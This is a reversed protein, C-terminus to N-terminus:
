QFNVLDKLLSQVLYDVINKVSVMGVPFNEEDVIPIHRYGGHSMMSLAFAITTTMQATQPNKTMFQSIPVEYDTHLLAIKTLVDRESFIGALRGADNVIIVCGVKQERLTEIVSRLTTNESAILPPPPNLLGVSRALFRQDLIGLQETAQEM